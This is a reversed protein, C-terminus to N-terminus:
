FTVEVGINFFRGPYLSVIRMPYNADISAMHVWSYDAVNTHFFMNQVEGLFVIKQGGKTVTDYTFGVDFKMYFPYKETYSTNPVVSSELTVPDVVIDRMHYRYGSGFLIRLHSQIHPLDPMNDQLFFRLTHEQDLIRRKYKDTGKIREKTDLYSYGLWSNLRQTVEGKMLIDFGQAYGESNNSDGYELKVREVYFPLLNDLEKYYAEITVDLSTSWRHKWGLIYHIALQSELDKTVSEPKNSIEYYFPPQYYKGYSFNFTNIASPRWNVSMRPSFLHEDTFENYLYRMGHNIAFKESFRIDNQIFANYSNMKLSQQSNVIHPALPNSEDSVETFSEEIRNDLDVLRTRVGVRLTNLGLSYILNSQIENTNLKLENNALETRSKIYSRNEGPFVASGDDFYDAFVNIEEREIMQYNAYSLDFFGKEGIQYRYKLAALRNAITYERRGDYEITVQQPDSWKGYHGIWEEPELVYSNSASLVFFELQSKPTLDYNLLLQGDYFEPQYEGETHQQNVFLKPNAYRLGGIWSVNGEHQHVEVGTYILNLKSQGGVGEAFNKKYNIELASAMKDGYMASFAGNRFEIDEVMEQNALSLNEEAGQRLLYPRYIEYGNLYILNEDFNGGRVNYGNSLENNSSVGPLIKVARLVDPYTTPMKRIDRTNITQVLTENLPKEKYTVTKNDLPASTLYAYQRKNPRDSNITVTEVSKTYGLYSFTLTYTGYPLKISYFGDKDSTTGLNGPSIEINCSSLFGGNSRDIVRGNISGREESAYLNSLLTLSIVITIFHHRM